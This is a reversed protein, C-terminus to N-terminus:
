KMMILKISKSKDGADVNVIYLGSSLKAGNNNTGEWRVTYKGQPHNGAHNHWVVEGLINYINIVVESQQYIDFEITTAPNFPNPYATVAFEEPISKECDKISVVTNFEGPTPSMFGWLNSDNLDRGWSIDDRQEGFSVSDIFDIGNSNVLALFEGDGDLKFGTHLPGDLTDDDCWLILTEGPDITVDNSFRWKTLNSRSDTIFTNLLSFSTDGPNYLEVWDDYEGQEDQLVSHNRAMLENLLVQNTVLGGSNIEIVTTNRYSVPDGFDSKATISFRGSSNPGLPPIVAIWIDNEEPNNSNNLPSNYIEIDEIETLNGPHYHIKMESIEPYGFAYVYVYVSDDPGPNAPHVTVNYIYPEAETYSLKAPLSSHRENVFEKIGRKVHQNSYPQSKFSNDFDNMTFGYDLTRYTDQLAYTVLRTRVANLDSEWMPLAYIKEDMVQLFHTYLNRFKDIALLKGSLPRPDGNLAPYNYPDIRAWDVSFWDIGFTNDYDYPIIDFLGGATNLYLYYNNSLFRYDDWSGTYLNFAFYKMANKINLYADVSDALETEPTNNLLDIFHILESYDQEDPDAKLDYNFGAVLPNAYVSQDTGQYTLDAKYICKWLKGSDDSFNKKIFEEDIHEVNVYLGYYEENIYVAAHAARSAKMGIEEFLDWCIKSRAISPDNHEGNLNLKELGYFNGGSGYTNFSVKFSKKQSHRSTNGRLRFGISDITEDIFSNKFHMSAIHLSDSQLNDFGYMWELATPDITIEVVAVESDDFVKWSQDNQANIIRSAILVLSGSLIITLRIINKLIRNM